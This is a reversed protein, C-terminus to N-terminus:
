RCAQIFLPAAIEDDDIAKAGTVFPAVDGPAVKEFDHRDVAEEGPEVAKALLELRHKV